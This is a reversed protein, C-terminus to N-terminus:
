LVVMIIVGVSFGSAGGVMMVKSGTKVRGNEVAEALAM